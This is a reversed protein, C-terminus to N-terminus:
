PAPDAAGFDARVKWSGDPQKRWVNLYRGHALRLGGAGREHLQWDGWTWGWDGADSVEAHRPERSLVGTAVQSAAVKAPGVAPEGSPALQVGREDFYDGFADAAGTELLQKSLARDAELLGAPDGGPEDGGGLGACGALACAAAFGLARRM